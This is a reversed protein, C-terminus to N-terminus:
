FFIVQIITNLLILNLTINLYKVLYKNISCCFGGNELSKIRYKGKSGIPDMEKISIKDWELKDNM